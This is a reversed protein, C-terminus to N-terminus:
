SSPLLSNTLSLKSLLLLVISRAELQMEGGNTISVIGFVGDGSGTVGRGNDGSLLASDM